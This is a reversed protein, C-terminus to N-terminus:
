LYTQQINVKSWATLQRKTQVCAEVVRAQIRKPMKSGELRSMVKMWAGRGRKLKLAVDEKWRM